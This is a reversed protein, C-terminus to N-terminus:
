AYRETRPLPEAQAHRALAVAMDVQDAFARGHIGKRRAPPDPRQRVRGAASSRAAGAGASPFPGAPRHRRPPRGDCGPSPRPRRRRGPRPRWGTRRRARRSPYPRGAWARLGGSRFFRCPIDSTARGVHEAAAGSEPDRGPILHHGCAVDQATRRTGPVTGNRGPRSAGPPDAPPSGSGPATAAPRVSSGEAGSTPEGRIWFLLRNRLIMLWGSGDAPSVLLNASVFGKKDVKGAAIRRLHHRPSM